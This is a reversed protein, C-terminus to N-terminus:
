GGKKRPAGQDAFRAVSMPATEPPQRGSGIWDALLRGTIASQLIGTKYHGSTLWANALGPVRDIVPLGDPHWPRFCCWQHSIRVEAAPAFRAQLEAVMRSVVEPRVDPSVDGPDVTGGVLWRGDELQTALPSVSGPLRAAAPETALMHGKVYGAPVRLDLGDLIPPNGTAFVVAAPAIEGLTTEISVIREGQVSAATAGVGTAVCALGAALRSAARLPNVRAQRVLVGARPEHVGPLLRAVDSAPLRCASSSLDASRLAPEPELGLWDVELLGVGGPWTTELERWAELSRRGLQVFWAPDVELHAEPLLLGAAGGTSGAGLHDREILVVSGLQARQCAAAIALGLIGGGVVLVDPQRDLGDPVGPALQAREEAGLLDPWVAHTVTGM